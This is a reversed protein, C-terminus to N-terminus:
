FFESVKNKVEEKNESWKKNVFIGHLQNRARRWKVSSHFYKTNLDGQKIWRQRAKQFLIAEQKSQFSPLSPSEKKEKRIM